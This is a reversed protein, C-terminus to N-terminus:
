ECFLDLTWRNMKIFSRDQYSSYDVIGLMPLLAHQVYVIAEYICLFTYIYIYCNFYRLVDTYTFLFIAMRVHQNHTDFKSRTLILATVCWQVNVSSVISFHIMRMNKIRLCNSYLATLSQVYNSKNELEFCWFLNKINEKLVTVPLSPLFNIIPCMDNRGIYCSYKLEELGITLVRLLLFPNKEVYEFSNHCVFNVCKLIFLLM